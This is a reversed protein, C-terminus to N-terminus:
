FNNEKSESKGPMHGVTGDSMQVIFDPNACVMPLDRERCKLLTTEIKGSLDGTQMFPFLSIDEENTSRQVNSGHAIIFDADEEKRVPQINGCQELFSASSDNSSNWTFWICKKPNDHQGFTKAIYKSAEEGSTVAGMFHTKDFGIKTTLKELATKSPSSTNSLIICKKGMSEVLTSMCELAGDLPDKGNHLVGFQDLIFGDYLKAIEAFSKHTSYQQQQQRQMQIRSVIRSMLKPAFAIVHPRGFSLISAIKFFLTLCHHIKSNTM